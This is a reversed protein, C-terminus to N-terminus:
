SAGEGILEQTLEKGDVLWKDGDWYYNFEQSNKKLAIEYTDCELATVGTEGRDRGYFVSYGDVKNDFSHGDPKEISEYLCSIDGLDVIAEAQEQTNYHNLLMNGVHELYGDFHCYVIKVKGNNCKTAISSRTSM